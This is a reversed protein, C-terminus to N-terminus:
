RYSVVVKPRSMIFRLWALRVSVTGTMADSSVSQNVLRGNLDSDIGLFLM